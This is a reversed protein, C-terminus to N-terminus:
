VYVGSPLHVVDGPQAAELAERLAATDDEGDDPVAGHDLVSITAAREPLRAEGARYGAYSWDMRRGKADLLEAEEGWLESAGDSLAAHRVALAASPVDSCGAVVTLLVLLRLPEPYSLVAM